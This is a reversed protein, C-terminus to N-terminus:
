LSLIEPCAELASHPLGFMYLHRSLRATVGGLSLAGMYTAAEDDLVHTGDASAKSTSM